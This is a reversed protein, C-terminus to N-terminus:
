LNKLLINITEDFLSFLDVIIKDGGVTYPLVVDVLGAKKVLWSSAYDPDYPTRLVLDVKNRRVINLINQLDQTSASIGPKSELVALENLELWDILYSFSKHHVIIKLNKLKKARKEWQAISNRLKAKFDHYSGQYFISNEPDLKMLRESLEKGVLLLNYPNLHIHPNGHLHMDGHSRDISEPKEILKVYDAAMLNGVEGIQLNNNARLLLLPLWGVELDAGSCFLLDAKRIKAILSPKARIYHPDQKGNIASFIHVKDGGIEEALSAWEPECAFINLKAQAVAPFIILFILLFRKFM